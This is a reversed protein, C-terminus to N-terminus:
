KPRQAAAARWALLVAHERAPDIGAKLRLRESEPRQLHWALTDCVSEKIARVSLGAQLARAVSVKAFAADASTPPTWIPMDTDLVVDHQQMFEVPV